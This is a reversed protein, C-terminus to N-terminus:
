GNEEIRRGIELWESDGILSFCRDSYAVAVVELIRRVIKGKNSRGRRAAEWDREECCVSGGESVAM